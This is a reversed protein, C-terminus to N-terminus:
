SSGHEEEWDAECDECYCSRLDPLEVGCEACCGEAEATRKAAIMLDRKQADM